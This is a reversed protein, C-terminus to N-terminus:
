SIVAKLSALRRVDPPAQLIAFRGKWFVDIMALSAPVPLSIHCTSYGFMNVRPDISIVPPMTIAGNGSPIRLNWSSNVPVRTFSIFRPAVRAVPTVVPCVIPPSCIIYVTAPWPVMM